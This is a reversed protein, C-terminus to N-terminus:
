SLGYFARDRTIEVAVSEAFRLAGPKDVRVTIEAVPHDTLIMRALDDVLAEVLFRESTEVHEIVKKTITRYNVADAIDDSKAAARTDVRLHLNVVLDQRNTREEPNIGLIGRILLNKIYISDVTAGPAARRPTPM